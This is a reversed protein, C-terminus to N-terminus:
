CKTFVRNVISNIRIDISIVVIICQSCRSEAATRSIDYAMAFEQFLCVCMPKESDLGPSSRPVSRDHGKVAYVDKSNKRNNGEVKRSTSRRPQKQTCVRNDHHRSAHVKKEKEEKSLGVQKATEKRKFMKTQFQLNHYQRPSGIVEM